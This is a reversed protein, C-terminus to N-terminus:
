VEQVTDREIEREREREWQSVWEDAQESVREQVCVAAPVLKSFSVYVYESLPRWADWDKGTMVLQLIRFEMVKTTLSLSHMFATDINRKM